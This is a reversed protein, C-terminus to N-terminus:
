GEAPFAPGPQDANAHNADSIPEHNDRVEVDVEVRVGTGNGEWGVGGLM